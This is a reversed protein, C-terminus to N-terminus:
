FHPKESIQLLYKLAFPALFKSQHMHPYAFVSIHTDLALDASSYRCVKKIAIKAGLHEELHLQLQNYNSFVLSPCFQCGYLDNELLEVEEQKISLVEKKTCDTVVYSEYQQGEFM